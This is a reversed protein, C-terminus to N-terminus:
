SLKFGDVWFVNGARYKKGEEFAKKEAEIFINRNFGTVPGSSQVLEMGDALDILHNSAVQQALLHSFLQPKSTEVRM